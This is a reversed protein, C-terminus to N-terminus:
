VGREPYPFGQPPAIKNDANYHKRLAADCVAYGWNILREQLDEPMAELRTPVAALQLTKDHPCEANLADELGYDRINTRIGWYAGKRSQDVYAAILLRKRLSRVQNDVLDLIRYSHRAWDSAPDPEPAIKQGGDSVLVTDYHKFVPELGLNDYVGGDSLVVKTTYPPHQLDAFKDPEFHQGALDLHVPSLFPPFASSAGVAVAVELTPNHILGTRYDGMFARRFRWLAATQVNTADLVFIPSDPLDQLTKHGFLHKRYAAAISEAITGFPNLGGGVVALWDITHRAFARLPAVIAPVFGDAVQDKGFDLAGWNVGLVAATISGGSVSSVCKLSPLLGAENIRWLSGVHFLMARYGGGSLCCALGQEPAPRAAEAVPTPPPITPDNAPPLATM